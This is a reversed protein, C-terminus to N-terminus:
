GFAAWRLIHDATLKYSSGDAVTITGGSSSKIVDAGTVVGAATVFEAQFSAINDLGTVIAKTGATDDAAVFTYLGSAWPKVPDCALVEVYAGDGSAADVAKGILYSGVGQVNSVKGAAATYIKDGAAIQVAAVMPRTGNARHLLVDGHRDAEVRRMVQGIGDEALGAVALVGAALKVRLYQNVATGGNMFSKHNGEVYQGSM